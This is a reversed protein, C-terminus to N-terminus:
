TPETWPENHIPSEGRIIRTDPPNRWLQLQLRNQKAVIQRVRERSVGILDAIARYTVGQKQMLWARYNRRSTLAQKLNFPEDEQLRWARQGVQSRTGKYGLPSVKHCEYPRLEWRPKSHYAVMGMAYREMAWRREREIATEFYATLPVDEWEWILTTRKTASM